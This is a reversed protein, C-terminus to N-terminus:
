VQKLAGFAVNAQRSGGERALLASGITVGSVIGGGAVLTAVLQPWTLDFQM